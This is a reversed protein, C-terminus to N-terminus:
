KHKGKKELLSIYHHIPVIWESALYNGNLIQRTRLGTVLDKGYKTKFEYENLDLGGTKSHVIDSLCKIMSTGLVNEHLYRLMKLKARYELGGSHLSLSQELKLIKKAM